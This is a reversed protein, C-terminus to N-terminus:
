STDLINVLMDSFVVHFWSIEVINVLMYFVHVEAVMTTPVNSPFSHASNVQKVGVLHTTSLTANKPMIITHM